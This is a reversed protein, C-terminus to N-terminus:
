GAYRKVLWMVAEANTQVAGDQEMVRDLADLVRTYAEVGMQFRLQRVAMAEYADDDDEFTDEVGDDEGFIATHDRTLAARDDDGADGGGWGMAGSLDPAMAILSARLAGWAETNTGALSGIPDFTVLVQREEDPTLEVWVVPVTPEGKERAEEWRLHGDLITNTTRNVLVRQVYGVDDLVRRLAARQKTPHVRANSPHPFITNTEVTGTGVMRNRWRRETM